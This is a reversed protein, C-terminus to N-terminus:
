YKLYQLCHKHVLNKEEDAAITCTDTSASCEICKKFLDHRCISCTLDTSKISGCFIGVPVLQVLEFKPPM